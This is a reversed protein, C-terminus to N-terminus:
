KSNRFYLRTIYYNNNEKTVIYILSSIFLNQKLSKDNLHDLLLLSSSSLLFKLKFNIVDMYLRM